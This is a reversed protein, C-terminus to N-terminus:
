LWDWAPTATDLAMFFAPSPAGVSVSIRSASLSSAVHGAPHHVSVDPGFVLGIRAQPRLPEVLEDALGPGLGVQFHEDLSGPRAALGEVM